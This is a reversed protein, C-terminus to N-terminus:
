WLAASIDVTKLGSLDVDSSPVPRLSLVQLSTLMSVTASASKVGHVHLERLKRLRTVSTPLEAFDDTTDLVYSSFNLYTLTTLNCILRM